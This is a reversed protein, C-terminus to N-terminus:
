AANSEKGKLLHPAHQIEDLIIGHQNTYEALFRRPDGLTFGRIDLDELSVYRHHPFTARALTTKGSQRPGVIAIVPAKQADKVISDALDRKIM